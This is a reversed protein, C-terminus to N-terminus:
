RIHEQFCLAQLISIIRKPVLLITVNRITALVCAIMQVISALGGNCAFHSVHVLRLTASSLAAREHLLQHARLLRAQRAVASQSRRFRCIRYMQVGRRLRRIPLLRLQLARDPPASGRVDHGAGLAAVAVM